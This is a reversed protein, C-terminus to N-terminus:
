RIIKGYVTSLRKVFMESTFKAEYYDRQEMSKRNFVEINEMVYEMKNALDVENGLEYLLGYEGDGMAEPIGGVSAGVLPTGASLGEILSISLAEKKSCLLQAVANKHYDNVNNVSGKFIAVSNLSNEEIYRQVTAFYVNDFVEGLFVIPVHYGREKLIKLAKVAELQNKNSTIHAVFLFYGNSLIRNGYPVHQFGDVGVGSYLVNNTRRIMFRKAIEITVRSIGVIYDSLWNRLLSQLKFISLATNRQTYLFKVGKIKFLLPEFFFSSYDFSHVLDYDFSLRYSKIYRKYSKIRRISAPRYKLPFVEKVGMQMWKEIIEEQGKMYRLYALSIEFESYDIHKCINNLHTYPNSKNNIGPTTILIRKM